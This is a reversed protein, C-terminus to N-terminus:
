VHDIPAAVALMTLGWRGVGRLGRFKVVGSHTSLIGVGLHSGHRNTTHATDVAGARNPV